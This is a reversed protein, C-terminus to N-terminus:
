SQKVTAQGAIPGSQADGRLVRKLVKGTASKPLQDVFHIVSPVKYSAISKRCLAALEIDTASCGPRLVVDAEVQEGTVANPIGYVAAEAVAPHQYLANEVEAPYVKLGAVNVMDKLRDEIFFYGEEDVRGIDGTYYWGNKLVQATAEPQNWYGLMVNPGRIVIEGVQGPQAKEGSDLDVIKMEVNEIPTGISGLKYKIHHNYSAFPSTETMGYGVNILIGFTEWWQEAIERPLNAAAGLYYRVPSLAAPDVRENLMIIFITPVACFMSVRNKEVSHLIQELEFRRHLVLTSGATLSANMVANQGFGHFLPLYLLMRDEPKIGMYHNKAYMNSIVNAHSLTVGKPFGTTGSSYVIAAPDNPDMEAAEATSSAQEMLKTFTMGSPAQDGAIIVHKLSPVNAWDIRAWLEPTTFLVVAGSDNLLYEIERGVLMVNISVSIAGLKQIGLYAFIFEPINPLLLAVRDGCQVGLGRLGNCVRNALEDLHRYSYTQDEFILAPRNPFYRRSSEVNHAINM